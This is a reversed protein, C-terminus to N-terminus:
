NKAGVGKDLATQPSDAKRGVAVKLTKDVPDSYAIYLINEKRDITMSSFRSRDAGTGAIVQVRWEKGDRFAHKLVGNDEYSLHLVGERDIVLSTRYDYASGTPEVRDVTEVKWSKGELWAHRVETDTYYAVHMVGSADM